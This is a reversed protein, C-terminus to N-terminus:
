EEAVHFEPRVRTAGLRAKITQSPAPLTMAPELSTYFDHMQMLSECAEEVGRDPLQSLLIHGLARLVVSRPYQPAGATELLDFTIAHRIRTGPSGDQWVM